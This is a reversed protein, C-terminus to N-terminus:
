FAFRVGLQIVRPFNAQTTIKGLTSSGFQTNPGYFQPTNTLNFVEARFQGAPVLELKISKFMSFDTNAMGPGRLNITRSLNGFTFQAAQSFAAPNIYHGLRQEVSGVTSPSVGTANPRQVSTGLASNLNSQYIALPFGNQMTTQFNVAWGGVAYIWSSTVRSSNRKGKGFPLTRLQGGLDLAIAHRHEGSGM